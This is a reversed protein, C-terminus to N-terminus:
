RVTATSSRSRHTNMCTSVRQVLSLEMLPVAYLCRELSGNAMFLKVLAKIDPQSCVM